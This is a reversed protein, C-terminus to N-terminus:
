PAYPRAARRDRRLLWDNCTWAASKLLVWWGEVSWPETRCRAWAPALAAAPERNGLHCSAWLRFVRAEWVRLGEAGLLKRNRRVVQLMNSCDDRADSRSLSGPELVLTVLPASMLYVPARLVLRIWLDIDEATRL